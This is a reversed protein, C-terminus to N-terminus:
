PKRRVYNNFPRLGLLLALACGFLGLSAPEPVSVPPPAGASAFILDDVQWGPTLACDAPADIPTCAPSGLTIATFPEDAIIGLFLSGSFADIAATNAALTGAEAGDAISLEYLDAPLFTMGDDVGSDPVFQFDAGFAFLGGGVHRMGVAEGQVLLGGGFDPDTGGGVDGLAQGGLLGTAIGPEEGGFVDPPDADFSYTFAGLQDGSTLERGLVYTDYGETGIGDGNLAAEFSGRDHYIVAAGAPAALGLLSLALPVAALRSASPRIM